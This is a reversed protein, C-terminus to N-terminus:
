RPEGLVVDLRGALGDFWAWRAVLPSGHEVFERFKIRADVLNEAEIEVWVPVTWYM